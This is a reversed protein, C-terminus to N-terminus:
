EPIPVGLMVLIFGIIFAMGVFLALVVLGILCGGLQGANEVPSSSKFTEIDKKMQQQLYFLIGLNVVLGVIRGATGPILILVILFIFAGVAGLVLHIIAKNSLNMKMWNISAIVLGAPFGLLFTVGAIFGPTWLKIPPTSPISSQVPANNMQNLMNEEM